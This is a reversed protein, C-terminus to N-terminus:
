GTLKSELYERLAAANSITKESSAYLLTVTGARAQEVLEGIVEGHQELERLYRAKFEEWRAPDHAYWLRLEHSPSIEKLWHGIGAKEKSIGRPWLRDVLVLVGDGKEAKDYVRKIRFGNYGGKGTSRVAAPARL